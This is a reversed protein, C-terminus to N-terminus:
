VFIIWWCDMSNAYATIMQPNSKGDDDFSVPISRASDAFKVLFEKENMQRLPTLKSPAYICEKTPVVMAIRQLTIM